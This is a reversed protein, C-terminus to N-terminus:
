CGTVSTIIGGQITLVCTGATKTVTVGPTGSFSFGGASIIPPTMTAQIAGSPTISGTDLFTNVTFNGDPSMHAEAGTTRGYVAYTTAGLVPAWTVSVSNIGGSTGTTVCKETNAASYGSANRAQIQYCYQTTDALTGGSTIAVPTSMIPTALVAMTIAGTYTQAGLTNVVACNTTTTVNNCINGIMQPTGAGISISSPTTDFTNGIISVSGTTSVTIPQAPNGSAGVFLNNNVIVDTAGAVIVVGSIGFNTGTDNTM